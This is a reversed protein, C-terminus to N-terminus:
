CCTQLSIDAEEQSPLLRVQLLREVVPVIASTVQEEPRCQDSASACLAPKMEGAELGSAGAPLCM